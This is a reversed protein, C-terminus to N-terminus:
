IKKANNKRYYTGLAKGLLTVTEENLEDPYTGRIDYERFIHDKLM